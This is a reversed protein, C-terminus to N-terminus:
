FVLTVRDGVVTVGAIQALRNRWSVVPIHSFMSTRDRDILADRVLAACALTQNDVPGVWHVKTSGDPFDRGLAVLQLLGSDLVVAGNIPQSVKPHPLILEGQANVANRDTQEGRAYDLLQARSPPRAKWFPRDDDPIRSAFEALEADSWNNVRQQTLAVLSLAM